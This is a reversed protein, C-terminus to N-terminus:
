QDSLVIAPDIRSARQAPLMCAALAVSGFLLAVSGIVFPDLSGVGYVQTSIATRLSVAGAIGLLLGLGVLILGEQLVLRVVGAQSSGLAMRIAIERKRQAVLYALVGYIGVSALFLALAGFGLALLMATRRSSLSLETRQAMTQIDFLALTPDVSAIQSRMTRVITASDGAAQAALIFHNSPSQSYPFYYAGEPDGSGTLNELRVSKVVGVVRYWVTHEDTKSLNRADPQYMRQGLPDRNPWFRRALKEDVLVVSPANENDSEQFYRGRLLPVGMTELYGPTVSLRRPSIVSEGPKLVYGEALIVSDDYNGGLPITTTAGVSAVGPTSRIAELSRSVLMQLQAPTRYASPPASISATIIGQTRFGPDVRLLQRFSALLLGAGVLLSFAFGIQAIVLGQRVRRDSKGRTGTRADERLANSFGRKWLGVLSMFGILVGMALAITMGFLVVSGDVKVEYSRPFGNLGAVALLRVSVAGVISGIVGGAASLLLNEIMLQRILQSRKAGLALRTALEKRRLTLRAFALNAVNLGGILLVFLSAAWLILLTPKVDKVVMDQLPEVATYFGANILVERMQPAAELNAANLADVESQVQQLTAGTRLRGISYWNNHHHATKQEPTFALPIWLRVDPHLFVFGPPMVGVITYPRGSLQLERGLVEKDGGYLQQWMGYSLIVEHERGIEGEESHFARGELPGIQLVRFFSPTVAMGEVQEPVTKLNVTQNGFQFMAQDELASVSRLRDFYDGSSSTNLDGVGAKPYRNSMLVLAEANPVPLPRLLVSNVIAFIAVNVAICASLTIVVASVFGKSRVLSRSGYNLDRVLSRIIEGM